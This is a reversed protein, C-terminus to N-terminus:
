EDTDEKKKFNPFFKKLVDPDHLVTMFKCAILMRACKPCAHLFNYKEHVQVTLWSDSHKCDKLKSVNDEFECFDCKM